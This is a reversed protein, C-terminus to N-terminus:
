KLPDELPELDELHGGYNRTCRLFVGPMWRLYELDSLRSFGYNKNDTIEM